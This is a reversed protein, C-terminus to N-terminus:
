SRLYQWVAGVTVGLDAAIAKTSFGEDKLEQARAINKERQLKRKKFYDSDQIAAKKGNLRAHHSRAHAEVNWSHFIEKADSRKSIFNRAKIFDWKIMFDDFYNDLDNDPIEQIQKPAKQKYLLAGAKLYAPRYYELLAEDTWSKIVIEEGPSFLEYPDDRVFRWADYMWRVDANNTLSPHTKYLEKQEPVYGLSKYLVKVGKIFDRKAQRVLGCAINEVGTEDVYAAEM